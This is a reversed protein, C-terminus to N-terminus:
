KNANVLAQIRAVVTELTLGNVSSLHQRVRAVDDKRVPLAQGGTVDWAKVFTFCQAKPQYNLFLLYTRGTEIQAGIGRVVNTFTGVNPIYASGGIQLLDLTTDQKWTSRNMLVSDVAIGYESYIVRNGPTLWPHADISRRVPPTVRFHISRYHLETSLKRWDSALTAYSIKGHQEQMRLGEQQPLPGLEMTGALFHKSSVLFGAPDAPITRQHM